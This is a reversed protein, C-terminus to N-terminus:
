AAINTIDLSVQWHSHLGRLVAPRPEYRPRSFSVDCSYHVREIARPRGLVRSCLWMVPFQAQHKIWSYSVVKGDKVVKKSIPDGWEWEYMEDGPRFVLPDGKEPMEFHIRGTLFLEEFSWSPDGADLFEEHASGAGLTELPLLFGWSAQLEYARDIWKYKDSYPPNTVIYDYHEDPEVRLFDGGDELCSTIVKFGRAALGSALRGSGVAPEWITSGPRLFKVLPDLAYHPTYCEDLPGGANASKPKM